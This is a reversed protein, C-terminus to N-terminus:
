SYTASTPLDALWCQAFIHVFAQKRIYARNYQLFDEALKGGGMRGEKNPIQHNLLGRLRMVGIELHTIYFERVLWGTTM